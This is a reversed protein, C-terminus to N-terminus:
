RKRSKRRFLTADGYKPWYTKEVESVTYAPQYDDCLEWSSCEGSCQFKCNFCHKEKVTQDYQDKGQEKEHEDVTLKKECPNEFFLKENIITIPREYLKGNYKVWIHTDTYREVVVIQGNRCFLVVGKRLVYDGM